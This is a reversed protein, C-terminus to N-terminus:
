VVYVLTDTNIIIIQAWKDNNPPLMNKLIVTSDNAIYSASNNDYVHGFIFRHDDAEYCLQKYTNTTTWLRNIDVIHGNEPALIMDWKDDNGDDQSSNYDIGGHFNRPAFRRPGFDDAVANAPFTDLGGYVSDNWPKFTIEQSYINQFLCFFLIPLIYKIEM